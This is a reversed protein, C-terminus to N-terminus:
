PLGRYIPLERHRQKLKSTRRTRGTREVIGDAVAARWIHGSAAATGFAVGGVDTVRLLVEDATFEPLSAACWRLASWYDAKAQDTAHDHADTIARERKTATDPPIVAWNHRGRHNLKGTCRLGPKAADCAEIQESPTRDFLTPDDSV